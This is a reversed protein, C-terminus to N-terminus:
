MELGSRRPMTVAIWRILDPHHQCPACLPTMAVLGSAHHEWLFYHGETAHACRHCPCHAFRGVLVNDFAVTGDLPPM